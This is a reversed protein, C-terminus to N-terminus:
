PLAVFWARWGLQSVASRLIRKFLKGCLVAQVLLRDTRVEAISASMPGASRRRALTLMLDWASRINVILLLVV